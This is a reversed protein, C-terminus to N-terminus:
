RAAASRTTSTRTPTGASTARRSWRPPRRSRPASTATTSPGARRRYAPASSRTPACGVRVGATSAARLVDGAAQTTVALPKEGYVHKGAAIAGLAVSAHAAPVTLNLVVDVEAAGCLEEVGVARVGDHTNAVAEALSRDLDSVACLRLSPLRRLTALYQQSINGCGVIGVGVQEGM